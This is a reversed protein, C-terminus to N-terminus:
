ADGQSREKKREKRGEKKKKFQLLFFFNGDATEVYNRSGVEKRGGGMFLLVVFEIDLKEFVM